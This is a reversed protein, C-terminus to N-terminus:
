RISVRAIECLRFFVEDKVQEEWGLDEYEVMDPHTKAIPDRVEGYVWGMDIYAQWWDDHLVKPSTKRDEGMQRAIVPRMQAKFAEERASWPEPIIPADVAAAQMRAVEYIFICQRELVDGTPWEIPRFDQTM